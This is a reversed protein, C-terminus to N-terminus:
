LSKSTQNNLHHFIALSILLTMILSKKRSETWTEIGGLKAIGSISYLSTFIPYQRVQDLREDYNSWSNQVATLLHWITRTGDRYLCVWISQYFNIFIIYDIIRCCCILQGSSTKSSDRFRYSNLLDTTHFFPSIKRRKITRKNCTATAYLISINDLLVAGVFPSFSARCDSMKWNKWYKITVNSSYM